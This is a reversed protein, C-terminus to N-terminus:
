KKSKKNIAKKQSLDSGDPIVWAVLMLFVSVLGVVVIAPLEPTLNIYKDVGTEALTAKGGAIEDFLFTTKLCGYLLTFVFAGILGGLIFFWADRKGEGAAVLGTGPCFGVIAWGLGLIAGGVIVGVYADKVSLHSNDIVGVAMLVFLTLSSLGIALLIAKMLHFDKLRLMQIIRESNSAGSKQLVFGFLFGIIIALTLHM